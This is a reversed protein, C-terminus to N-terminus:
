DFFIGTAHIEHPEGNAHLVVDIATGSELGRSDSGWRVL